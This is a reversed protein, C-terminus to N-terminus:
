EQWRAPVDVADARRESRGARSPGAPRHTDSHKLAGPSVTPEVQVVGGPDRAAAPGLPWPASHPLLQWLTGSSSAASEEVWSRRKLVPESSREGRRCNGQGRLFASGLASHLTLGGSPRHPTEPALSSRGESSSPHGGGGGRAGERSHMSLVKARPCMGGAERWGLHQPQLALLRSEPHGEHAAVWLGPPPLSAGKEGLAASAPPAPSSEPSQELLMRACDSGPEWTGM